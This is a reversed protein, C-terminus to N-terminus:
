SIIDICAMHHTASHLWGIHEAPGVPPHVHQQPPGPRLKPHPGGKEVRSVVAGVDVVVQGQQPQFSDVSSTLHTKGSSHSNSRTLLVPSIHKGVATLIPVLWCFQHSTNEWQQSFQFPDVPSTLHTKGSCQSNSPVRDFETCKKYETAHKLSHYKTSGHLSLSNSNTNLSQSLYCFEEYM